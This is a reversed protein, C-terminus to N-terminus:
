PAGNAGGGTARMRFSIAFSERARGVDLFRQSPAVIRVDRFRADGDLLPVLRPANDATGDVRWGRGDWQLRQVFADRPLVRGLEALVALPADPSTSRGDADRLLELETRANGLRTLAREAPAADTSRTQAEARLASLTADRARDASWMLLVLSAALLAASRVWRRRGRGSLQAALKADLLQREVPADAWEAAARAIEASHVTRAGDSERPADTSELPARRVQQIVGDKVRLVGREDAGAPVVLSGTGVLHAVVQPAAVVVRVPAISELASIWSTFLSERVAFAFRQDLSAAVAGDIPFYRDADRWVLSRRSMADLPPLDPEAIDLLGLGVVCVFGASSPARTRISDGLADPADPSWPFVEVARSRGAPILTIETSDLVVTTFRRSGSM